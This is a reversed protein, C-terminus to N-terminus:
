ADLARPIPYFEDLNGHSRLGVSERQVELYWRYRRAEALVGEYVRREGDDDAGARERVRARRRELDELLEALRGGIRQLAAARERALEREVREHTEQVGQFRPV